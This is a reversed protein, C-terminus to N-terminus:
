VAPSVRQMINVVKSTVWSASLANFAQYHESALHEAFAAKSDYIEYLFVENQGDHPTCVDFQSCGPEDALSTNANHIVAQLFAAAHQPKLTFLVTVVYM